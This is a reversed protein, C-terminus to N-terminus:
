EPFPLRLQRPDPPETVDSKQTQQSTYEDIIRLREQDSGAFELATELRIMGTPRQIWREVISM